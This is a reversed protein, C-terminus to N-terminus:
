ESIKGLYKNLWAIVSHVLVPRNETVDHPTDMVVHSKDSATTGLMNFLPTQAQDLPFDYDYRGNVMLVPKKMRPAFDAQDGGAPPHEIFYGGDLWVVAKLRDQLLTSVIVGDAAGMSVGLYALRSSDIDKRTELFDLTRAADKYWDATLALAQSGGPMSYKLRREYTDEYVPYAVARGSQVVYDFFQIDGLDASDPPQFYVRASPFFLVTQYPPQVRKPLFLYIAMREGNYATDIVIKEERWDATEKVIGLDQPTLPTKIYDYMVKYARFVDDSAPKYASFDRLTRHFPRVASDPLPGLNRVCRFGTGATRDLPSFAEPENSMYAASQWSGGLAFRLQDDVTNAIWERVNGAMDLTGYPGLGKFTGVPAVASGGLNSMAATPGTLEPPSARYYQSLVPLSKGAWAAYAAAEYWSVGAVPNDAQGEPYHGATWTAPGPRGSADTFDAAVVSWPISRGDKEIQVPWYKANSYGGADVFQQYARNTVETRDIYFAPLPAPALWGLFVVYDAFNGAPVYAMGAPAASIRALPFNMAEDTPPALITEQGGPATLKWRFQAKPIRIKTLPTPGLTKWPSQPLVYDQIAVTAGAPDSTVTVLLTNKEEIQQLVPDSPLAKQARALLAQAELPHWASFEAEIQAPAEDRAWRQEAVHRWLVWGGIAAAVLILAFGALMWKPQQWRPRAVAEPPKVLSALDRHMEEASQYRKGPDKELARTLIADAIPPLDPRLQRAHTLPSQTIARLLGLTSESRFPPQGTLTEYFIVGLSWLDTRADVPTGLAQEPSMYMPTGAIGQTQTASPDAQLIRALGFDLVKAHGRSNVMINGPKLDRHVVGQAHAERLADLVELVIQSATYIDLPGRSRLRNSLTEGHVLEMVIYDQGDQEGADYVAAIHPHNLRALALAEIRFRRRAESNSLVGPSLMKIAVERELKEDRARYVVGMGGMGIPQVITYRGIRSGDALFDVPPATANSDLLPTVSPNERRDNEVLLTEVTQRLAPDGQCAAALFEARQEPSMDIAQSFLQEAPSSM